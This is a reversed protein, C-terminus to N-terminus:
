SIPLEDISFQVPLDKVSLELQHKVREPQNKKSHKYITWKTITGKNAKRDWSDWDDRACAMFEQNTSTKNKRQQKETSTM